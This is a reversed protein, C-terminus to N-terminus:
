EVVSGSTVPTVRFVKRRVSAKLIGAVQDTECRFAEHLLNQLTGIDLDVLTSAQLSVKGFEAYFDGNPTM